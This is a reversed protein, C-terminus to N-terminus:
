TGTNETRLLEQAFLANHVYGELVFQSDRIWLFLQQRTVESRDINGKLLWM